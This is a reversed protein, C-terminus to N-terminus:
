RTRVFEITQTSSLYPKIYTWAAHSPFHNLLYEPTYRPDYETEVNAFRDRKVPNSAAIDQPTRGSLFTQALEFVAYNINVPVDVQGTRPFALLQNSDLKDGAFNFRDLFLSASVLARRKTPNDASLWIENNLTNNFYTDGLYVSGYYDLALPIQDLVCLVVSTEKTSGSSTTFKVVITYEFGNQGGAIDMQIAQGPFINGGLTSNNIQVNSLVLNAPVSYSYEINTVTSNNLIGRLDITYNNNEIPQKFLKLAM